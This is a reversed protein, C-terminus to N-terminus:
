EAPHLRARFAGCVPFALDVQGHLVHIFAQVTQVIVVDMSVFDTGTRPLALDVQEHLVYLINCVYLSLKPTNASPHAPMDM